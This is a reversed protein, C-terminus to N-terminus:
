QLCFGNLRLHMYVILAGVRRLQSYGYLLYTANEDRLM